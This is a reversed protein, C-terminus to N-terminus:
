KVRICAKPPDREHEWLITLAGSALGVVLTLIQVRAKPIASLETHVPTAHHASAEKVVARFPRQEWLRQAATHVPISRGIAGEVVDRIAEAGEGLM